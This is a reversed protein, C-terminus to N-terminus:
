QSAPRPALRAYQAIKEHEQIYTRTLVAPERTIDIEYLCFSREYAGGYYHQSYWTRLYEVATAADTGFYQLGHLFGSADVVDLDYRAGVAYLKSVSTHQHAAACGRIFQELIVALASHYTSAPIGPVGRPRRTFVERIKHQDFENRVNQYREHM